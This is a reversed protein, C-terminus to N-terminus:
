AQFNISCCIMKKGDVKLDQQERNYTDYENKAKTLCDHHFGAELRFCRQREPSYNNSTYEQRRKDAFREYEAQKSFGWLLTPSAVALLLAAIVAGVLKVSHRKLWDRRLM